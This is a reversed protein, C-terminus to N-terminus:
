YRSYPVGLAQLKGIRDHTEPHSSYLAKILSNQPVGTGITDLASALEYGFGIEMAYKDADYENARSSWMLFLM